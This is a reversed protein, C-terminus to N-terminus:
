LYFYLSLIPFVSILISAKTVTEFFFDHNTFNFTHFFLCYDPVSETLGWVRSEFGFSPFFHLRSENDRVRLSGSFCKSIDTSRCILHASNLFVGFSCGFECIFM